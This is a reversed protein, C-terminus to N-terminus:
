HIQIIVNKIQTYSELAHIGMDRGFGSQKYGGFPAAADFINHCNVWVTGAKLGKAVKHAKNIDQTWVSAALGYVTDNGQAIVSDLDEFPAAVLVPGFIEEAVIKMDPNVNDFVTPEVYCGSQMPGGPINGGTCTKAGQEKGSRIYSMVREQQERSILPGMETDLCMGPGVKINKALESVRGVLDEYINKHVLLRSGAACCQGHNFFIAGAVGQAALELDADAFVISPSKGGLELSVRKLNGSSSKIIEHGVESSGTFAVKDVGTHRALAEGADGFGTIINVVGDPFGAEAFLDALYLVSLPTQEAPKLVVCNGAALAVGLKWTAMLLPFNWPVIQGVVGVPERLTFDLFETNPAYPVSIDLTEGHIKTTMGAYYRFHDVVLPIDAARAIAIPKGNDLTELQAFEEARQEILDALKWIIKGRESVTIKRWPGNDFANRAAKVALNIDEKEGKPVRTLVKNDSPDLVELTEGSASDVRKGGILLKQPAALFKKIASVPEPVTVITM